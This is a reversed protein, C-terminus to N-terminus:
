RATFSKAEDWTMFNIFIWRLIEGAVGGKCRFSDQGPKVRVILPGETEYEGDIAAFLSPDVRNEQAYSAHNDLVYRIDRDDTHAAKYLTHSEDDDQESEAAENDPQGESVEADNEGTEAESADDSDNVDEWGGNSSESDGDADMEDDSVGTLQVGENMKALAKDFDGTQDPLLNYLAFWEVPAVDTNQDSM